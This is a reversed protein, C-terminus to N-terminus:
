ATRRMRICPIEVGRRVKLLAEVSWFGFKQYFREANLSSTLALDGVPMSAIAHRMLISGIGTQNPLAYVHEIESRQWSIFGVIEGDRVAVFFTLELIRTPWSDPSVAAEWALKQESSYFTEDIERISSVFVHHLAPGDAVDASRITLGTTAEM